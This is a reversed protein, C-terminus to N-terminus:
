FTALCLFCTFVHMSLRPMSFMCPYGLCSFCAFVHMSLRPMSFVCPYCLCPFCAFVHMSLRPVFFMYPYGLSPFCAQFVQMSLKPMSFMCPYSLCPFSPRSLLVSCQIDDSVYLSRSGNLVHLNLSSFQMRVCSWSTMLTLHVLSLVLCCGLSCYGPQNITRSVCCCGFLLRVLLLRASQNHTVCLLM